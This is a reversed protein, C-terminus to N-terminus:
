IERKIVMDAIRILQEATASSPLQRIRATASTIYQRATDQAYILSATTDLLERLRARDVPSPSTVGLQSRLEGNGKSLGHIMPLTLKKKALDRGLTKGMQAENGAIDLIDDTIQFAIGLDRGYGALLDAVQEDAGAFHAGLRCCVQALSATKRDIIELYTEINLDLNGRQRVQQLEGACITNATAAICRLAYLSDLSSCLHFAHSILYDGLLVATENGELRNITPSGRRLEGEDLVDDHVLTAMHVMEVVAAVTLHAPRISGCARASLLVLAPRLMKGRYRGVHACLENVAPLESALEREFIECVQELEAAITEQIASIAPM